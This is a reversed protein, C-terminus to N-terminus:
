KQLYHNIQKLQTKKVLTSGVQFTAGNKALNNEDGFLKLSSYKASDNIRTIEKVREDIEDQMATLEEDSYTGNKAQLTLDRIRLVNDEIVDLNGETTSLL